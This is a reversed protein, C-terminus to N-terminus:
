QDLSDPLPDKGSIRKALAEADALPMHVSVEIVGGEIPADVVPEVLVAGDLAMPLPKGVRTRTLALLRRAAPPTFTLMIGATGDMDPMARADLIDGQAFGEGAITLGAPAAATAPAALLLLLAALIRRM